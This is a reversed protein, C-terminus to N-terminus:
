RRKKRTKKAVPEPAKYIAFGNDMYADVEEGTGFQRAAYYLPKHSPRPADPTTDVVPLRGFGDRYTFANVTKVKVSKM